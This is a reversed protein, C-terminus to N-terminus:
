AAEREFRDLAAKLKDMTSQNPKVTGDRWRTWTSPAVGAHRCVQTISKRLDYARMAIERMQADFDSM